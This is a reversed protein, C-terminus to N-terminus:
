HVSHTYFYIVSVNTKILNTQFPYSYFIYIKEIDKLTNNYFIIPPKGFPDSSLTLVQSLESNRQYLKKFIEDIFSTLVEERPLSQNQGFKNKLALKLHSTSAYRDGILLDIITKKLESHDISKVLGERKM